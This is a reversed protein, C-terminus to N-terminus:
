WRKRYIQDKPKTQFIIILAIIMTLPFAKPCKGGVLPAAPLAERLDNIRTRRILGSNGLENQDNCCDHSSKPRFVRMGGKPRRVRAASRGPSQSNRRASKFTRGSRGSSQSQASSTISEPM